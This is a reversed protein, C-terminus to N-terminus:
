RRRGEPPPPARKCHMWPPFYVEAIRYYPAAGAPSGLVKSAVIKTAGALKTVAMPVHEDLYAREFTEIDKPTPYIVLLKVLSM